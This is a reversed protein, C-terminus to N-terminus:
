KIEMLKSIPLIEISQEEAYALASRVFDLIMSDVDESNRDFDHALIVAGNERRLSSIRDHDRKEAGWTDGLDFTWYAIPVRHFLLYLLCILNLKGYPPRFPYTGSKTGLASDIARWGKKIDGLARFPLVKWYNLHDYGHSCVDHGAAAIQRVIEECGSINRGLFFFSVKANHEALLKLIAPTLRVGPGDDFTLVITKSISVYQKLKIKLLKGFLWPVGFYLFFSVPVCAILMVLIM